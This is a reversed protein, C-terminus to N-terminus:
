AASPLLVVSASRLRVAAFDALLAPLSSCRRIRSIFRYRPLTLFRDSIDNGEQALVLLLYALNATGAIIPENASYDGFNDHDVIFGTNMTVLAEAAAAEGAQARRALAQEQTATLLPYDGIKRLYLDLSTPSEPDHARLARTSMAGAVASASTSASSVTTASQPIPFDM